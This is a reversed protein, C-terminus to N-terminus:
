EKALLNLIDNDGTRGRHEELPLVLKLNAEPHYELNQVLVVDGANPALPTVPDVRPGRM